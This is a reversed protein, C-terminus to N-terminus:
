TTTPIWVRMTSPGREAWEHYPVLPVEVAAADTGELEEGYPWRADELPLRTVSVWVRGDREVPAAGPALAVRGVDDVGAPGLDVSELALVEPGREVAVCGRVADVRADPASVRPAM